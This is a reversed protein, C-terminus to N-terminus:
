LVAEYVKITEKAVKEWSFEKSREIAKWDRGKDICALVKEAFQEIYDDSDLDVLEGCTGVVEPISAKNSAVIPTGCAMAELLPMGFGEYESTHLLVDAANYLIPMEKEPVFGINIIGEGRLKSGYGAKLLKVDERCNKIENFVAKVIDMRKHPLNSAVVLIHKEEVNLRLRRKCYEKNIPRYLSHGVGMYIVEINDEDIGIQDVIENKTFNSVAIIRDVRKLTRKLLLRKVRSILSKHLSYIDHVTVIFKKPKPYSYVSLTQSTAHIVDGRSKYFLRLTIPNGKLGKPRRFIEVEAGLKKVEKPLYHEYKGAGGGANPTWYVVKLFM